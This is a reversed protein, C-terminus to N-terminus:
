LSSPQITRRMQDCRKQRHRVRAPYLQGLHLQIFLKAKTFRRERIGESRERGRKRADEHFSYAPFRCTCNSRRVSALAVARRRRGSQGLEQKGRRALEVAKGGDDPFRVLISLSGFGESFLFQTPQIERFLRSAGTSASSKGQCGKKYFENVGIKAFVFRV